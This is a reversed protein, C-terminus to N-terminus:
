RVRFYASFCHHVPGVSPAFFSHQRNRASSVFLDFGVFSQGVQVVHAINRSEIIRLPMPHLNHHKPPIFSPISPNVFPCISLNVSKRNETSRRRCGASSSLRRNSDWDWLSPRM